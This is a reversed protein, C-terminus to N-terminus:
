GKLVAQDIKFELKRSKACNTDTWRAKIQADYIGATKSTNSISLDLTVVGNDENTRTFHTDSTKKIIRTTGSSNDVVFTLTSGSLDIASGSSNTFTFTLTVGEGAIVSIDAM